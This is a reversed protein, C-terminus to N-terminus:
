IILILLHLTITVILEVLVVVGRTSGKRLPVLNRTCGIIHPRTGPGVLHWSSDLIISRTGGGLLRSGSAGEWHDGLELDLIHNLTLGQFETVLQSVQVLLYLLLRTLKVLFQDFEVLIFVLDLIRVRMLLIVDSLM